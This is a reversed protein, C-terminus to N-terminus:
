ELSERDSVYKVDVFFYLRIQSLRRFIREFDVRWTRKKAQYVGDNIRGGKKGAENEKIWVWEEQRGKQATSKKQLVLCVEIYRRRRFLTRQWYKIIRYM